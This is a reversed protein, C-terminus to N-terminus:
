PTEFKTKLNQDFKQTLNRVAAYIDVHMRVNAPITTHAMFSEFIKKRVEAPIAYQYKSVAAYVYVYMRVNAPITTHAMVLEFIRKESRPLFRTKTSASHQMYMCMCESM